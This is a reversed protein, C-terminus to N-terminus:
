ITGTSCGWDGGGAGGGARAGAGARADLAVGVDGGGLVTRGIVRVLTHVQNEHAKAHGSWLFGRGCSWRLGLLVAMWGERVWSRM